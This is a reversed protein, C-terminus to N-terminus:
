FCFGPRSYFQPWARIEEERDVYGVIRFRDSNGFSDAVSRSISTNDRDLVVTKIGTVVNNIYM